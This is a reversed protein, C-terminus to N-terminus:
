LVEENSNNKCHFTYFKVEATYFKTKLDLPKLVNFVFYEQLTLPTSVGNTVSVYNVECILRYITLIIYIYTFYRHIKKTTRYWSKLPYCVLM